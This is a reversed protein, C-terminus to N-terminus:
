VPLARMFPEVIDKIDEASCSQFSKGYLYSYFGDFCEAAYELCSIIYKKQNTIKNYFDSWFKAPGYDFLFKRVSMDKRQLFKITSKANTDYFINFMAKKVDEGWIHDTRSLEYMDELPAGETSLVLKCWQFYLFM